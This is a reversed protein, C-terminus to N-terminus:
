LRNTLANRVYIKGDAMLEYTVAVCKTAVENVTFYREVEYWTGLFRTRNFKLIPVYDPCGGLGPIQSDVFSALGCLGVVCLLVKCKLDLAM